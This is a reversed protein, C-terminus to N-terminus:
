TMPPVCAVARKQQQQKAVVDFPTKPLSQLSATSSTWGGGSNWSAASSNVVGSNLGVNQWCLVDFV